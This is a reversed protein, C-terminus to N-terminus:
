RKIRKKTELEWDICEANQSLTVLINFTGALGSGWREEFDIIMNQVLTLLNSRNSDDTFPSAQDEQELAGKIGGLEQKITKVFIPVLSTTGFKQGECIAQGENFLQLVHKIDALCQCDDKNM